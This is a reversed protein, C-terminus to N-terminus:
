NTQNGKIVKIKHPKVDFLAQVVETISQVTVANDGGECVVAVGEVKEDEQYTIIVQVNGAGEIEGLVEELRNEINTDSGMQIEEKDTPIAIVILLIGVLLLVVLHNKNLKSHLEKWISRQM